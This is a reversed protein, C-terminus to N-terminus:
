DINYLVGISLGGEIGHAKVIESSRSKYPPIFLTTMTQKIRGTIFEYRLGIEPAIAAKESLKIDIGFIGGIGLGFFKTEYHSNSIIEHVMVSDTECFQYRFGLQPGMHLRFRNENVITFGFSNILSLRNFFDLDLNNNNLRDYTFTTRYHFVDNVNIDLTLGYGYLFINARMKSNSLIIRSKAGAINVHGGVGLAWAGTHSILLLGVIFSLSIKKM